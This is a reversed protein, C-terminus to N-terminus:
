PPSSTLLFRELQDVRKRYVEWDKSITGRKPELKVGTLAEMESELDELIKLWTDPVPIDAKKRNTIKQKAEQILNKAVELIAEVSNKKTFEMRVEM